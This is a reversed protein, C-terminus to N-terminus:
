CPVLAWRSTRRGAWVTLDDYCSYGLLGAVAPSSYARCYLHQRSSAYKDHTRRLSPPVARKLDKHFAMLRWSGPCWGGAIADTNSWNHLSAPFHNSAKRSLLGVPVTYAANCAPFAAMAYWPVRRHHHCYVCVHPLTQTDLLCYGPDLDWQGLQNPLPSTVSAAVTPKDVPTM